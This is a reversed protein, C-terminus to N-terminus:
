YLFKPYLSDLKIRAKETTFQWKVGKQKANCEQMWAEVAERLEEITAFRHGKVCQITLASLENEAINLWSGHKPTPIIELRRALSRALEPEFTEYLAGLSHVNLNDCVLRIKLADPYDVEALIRVEHAWDIATKRERVSVRRQCGLPCSFMFINAVGAREYEYDVRRAHNRSAPIPTRTEKFLQVPQEDMVVVPIKPDYPLGYIDLVAEM